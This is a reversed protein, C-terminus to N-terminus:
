INPTYVFPYPWLPKLWPFHRGRGIKSMVEYEIERDEITLEVGQITHPTIETPDSMTFGASTTLEEIEEISYGQKTYSIYFQAITANSVEQRKNCSGCIYCLLSPGFECSKTNM